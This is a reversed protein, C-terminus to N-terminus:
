ETGIGCVWAPIWQRVRLISQMWDTRPQKLATASDETTFSPADRGAGMVKLLYICADCFGEADRASTEWFAAEYQDALQQGEETSVERAWQKDAKNGVLAVSKRKATPFQQYLNSLFTQDYHLQQQVRSLSKTDSIDYVYIL